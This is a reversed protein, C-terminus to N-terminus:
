DSDNRGSIFPFSARLSRLSRISTLVLKRWKQARNSHLNWEYFSSHNGLKKFFYDCGSGGTEKPWTTVSVCPVPSRRHHIISKKKVAIELFTTPFLARSLGSLYQPHNQTWQEEFVWEDESVWPCITTALSLSFPRFFIARLFTFFPSMKKRGNLRERAGVIQGQTESSSVWQSFPVLPWPYINVLALPFYCFFTPCSCHWFCHISRLGM